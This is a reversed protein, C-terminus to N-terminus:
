FARELTQVSWRSRLRKNDNMLITYTHIMRRLLNRLHQMKPMDKAMESVLGERRRERRVAM